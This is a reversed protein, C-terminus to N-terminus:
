YMKDITIGSYYHTLITKYYDKSSGAKQAMAAAGWQSLGLGHGWGYGRIYVTDSAKKFTHYAKPSKFSDASTPPKVNVYFDFLTSKLGLMKMITDGSTTISKKSGVFTANLVRGSVGRDDAKIPRKRLTSLKIEKLTGVDKGAAKLKSELASRTLTVTWASTDSNNSYDKVGKLYPVVSGWVNVSDETYGGGDAHFLAEILSGKYKMVMGKTADVARTTSDYEGAQGNYVQNSTTPKVDYPKSASQNMNYLAYTRAAVAQAKLAEQPWSPVAEAPVVGYLYSEISTENVIMMAGSSTPIIKVAGRYPKGDVKVAASTKGQWSKIYIEGDVTKGNVTLKHNKIGVVVAQGTTVKQIPKKDANYVSIEGIGTVTLPSTRAGLLIRINPIKTDENTNYAPSATKVSKASNSKTNVTKSTTSSSSAKTVGSQNVAENKPTSTKASNATSNKTKTVRATTGKEIDTVNGMIKGAEGKSRQGDGEKIIPIVAAKVAPSYIADLATIGLTSLSMLLMFSWTSWANRKM